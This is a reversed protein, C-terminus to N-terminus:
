LVSTYRASDIGSHRAGVPIYVLPGPWLMVVEVTNPCQLEDLDRIAATTTTPTDPSDLWSDTARDLYM